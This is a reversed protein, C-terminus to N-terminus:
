DRSYHPKPRGTTPLTTTKTTSPPRTVTTKVPQVPSPATPEPPPTSAIPAATASTAPEPAPASASTSASTSASASAPATASAPLEVGRLRELILQRAFWVDMSDRFIVTVASLGARSVSRQDVAGPVGNLANEIPMTVTREVEVPSLGTASTLVSVQVPSVDPLADIPLTSAAWVGVLLLLSITALVAARARISAFVLTSLWM